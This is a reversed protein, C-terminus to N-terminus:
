WLGPDMDGSITLAFGDAMAKQCVQGFEAIQPHSFDFEGLSVLQRELAM